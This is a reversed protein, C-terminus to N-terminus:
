KDFLETERQKIYDSIQKGKYGKSIAEKANVSLKFKWIKLIKSGIINAWMKIQQPKLKTVAQEKKIVFIDKPSFEYM